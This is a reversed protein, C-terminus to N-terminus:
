ALFLWDLALFQGSEQIGMCLTFRQGVFGLM